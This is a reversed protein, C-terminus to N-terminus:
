AIWKTLNKKEKFLNGVLLTVMIEGHPDDVQTLWEDQVEPRADIHENSDVILTPLEPAHGWFGFTLSVM